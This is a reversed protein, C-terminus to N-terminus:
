YWWVCKFTRRVSVAGFLNGGFVQSVALVYRYVGDDTFLLSYNTL